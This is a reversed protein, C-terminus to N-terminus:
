SMERGEGGGIRYTRKSNSNLIEDKTQKNGHVRKDWGYIALIGLIEIKMPRINSQSKKKKKRPSLYIYIIQIRLTQHVYM